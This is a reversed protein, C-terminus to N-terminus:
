RYDGGYTLWNGPEASANLLREYTVSQPFAVGSLTLAVLVCASMRATDVSRRVGTIQATKSYHRLSSRLPHACPRYIDCLMRMISKECCMMPCGSGTSGGVGTCLRELRRGFRLPIISISM